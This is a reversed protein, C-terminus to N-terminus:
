CKIKAILCKYGELFTDKEEKTLQKLEYNKIDEYFELSFECAIDYSLSEKGYEYSLIYREFIDSDRCLSIAIDWYITRCSVSVGCYEIWKIACLRLISDMDINHELM